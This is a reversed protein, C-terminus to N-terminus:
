LFHYKLKPEMKYYNHMLGVFSFFLAWVLEYMINEYM